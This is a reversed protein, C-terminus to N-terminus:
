TNLIPLKRFIIMLKKSDLFTNLFASFKAFTSTKCFRGVLWSFVCVRVYFICKSLREYMCLSM